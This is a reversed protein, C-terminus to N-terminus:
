QSGKIPEQKIGKKFVTFLYCLHKLQYSVEDLVHIQRYSIIEKLHNTLLKGGIDIRKVAEKVKKGNVYPIIHTFSYGSDVVLCCQESPHQTKNKYCSLDAPNTRFISKFGYEEFLLESLGEKISNFNFYPDTFILDFDSLSNGMRFCNKGFM